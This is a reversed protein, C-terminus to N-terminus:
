PRGWDEDPRWNEKLWDEYNESTFPADEIMGVWRPLASGPEGRNQDLYAQLAEHILEDRSRGTREAVADLAEGVGVPIKVQITTTATKM